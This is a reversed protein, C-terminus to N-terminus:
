RRPMGYFDAIRDPDADEPWEERREMLWNYTEQLSGLGTWGSAIQSEPVFIVNGDAFLVHRGDAFVGRRTYAVAADWPVDAPLSGPYEYSCPSGQPGIRPPDPDGPSVLNEPSHLYGKEVLAYLGPPYHEDHESRYMALALGINRLNARDAARGAEGRARSLAPMLMAAMVAAYGKYAQGLSLPPGAERATLRVDRDTRGLTLHLQTGPLPEPYSSILLGTDLYLLGAAQPPEEMMPPGDGEIWAAYAEIAAPALGIVARDELYAVTLPPMMLSDAPLGAVTREAPAAGTVAAAIRGLSARFGERDALPLVAYSQEPRLLGDPGPQPLVLAFGAGLQAFLDDFRLALAEEAAAIDEGLPGEFHTTDVRIMDDRVGGLFAVPDDWRFVLAASPEAPVLSVLDLAGEPFRYLVGDAPQGLRLMLNVAREDTAYEFAAYEADDLGLLDVALEMRKAEARTAQAFALQM